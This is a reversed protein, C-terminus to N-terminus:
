GRHKNAPQPEAPDNDPQDDPNDDPNVPTPKPTEPQEEPKIAPQQEPNTEPNQGGDQADDVLTPDVAPLPQDGGGQSVQQEETAAPKSVAAITLMHYKAVLKTGAPSQLAQFLEQHPIVKRDTQVATADDQYYHALRSDMAVMIFYDVDALVPAASLLKAFREAPKVELYQPDTAPVPFRLHGSNPENVYTGINTLKPQFGPILQGYPNHDKFSTSGTAIADSDVINNKSPYPNPWFGALNAGSVPVGVSRLGTLTSDHTTFLVSQDNQEKAYALSNVVVAVLNAQTQHVLAEQYARYTDLTLQPYKLDNALINFFTDTPLPLNGRTKAVGQLGAKEINALDRFTGTVTVDVNRTPNTPNPWFTLKDNSPLKEHGQNPSAPNVNLPYNYQTYTVLYETTDVQAMPVYAQAQCHKQSALYTVEQATPLTLNFQSFSFGAPVKEKVLCQQYANEDFQLQVAGSGNASASGNAAHAALDSEAGSAVDGSQLTSSEGQQAASDSQQGLAQQGSQTPDQQDPQAPATQEPTSGNDQPAVVPADGDTSQVPAQEDQPANGNQQQAQHAAQQNLERLSMLATKAFIPMQRPSDAQVTVHHQGQQRAAVYDGYNVSQSGELAQATPRLIPKALAQAKKEELEAVLKQTAADHNVQRGRGKSSADTATAQSASADAKSAAVKSTSDQTVGSASAQNAAKDAENTQGNNQATDQSKEQDKSNDQAQESGSDTAPSNDAQEPQQSKGQEKTQDTDAKTPQEPKSAEQKAADSDAQPAQPQKSDQSSAEQSTTEKDPEAFLVNGTVKNSTTTGQEPADKSSASGADNTTDTASGSNQNSSESAPAQSAQASSSNQEGQYQALADGLSDRLRFQHQKVAENLPLWMRAPVNFEAYSDFYSTVLYNYYNNTIVFTATKNASADATAKVLQELKIDPSTAGRFSFKFQVRLAQTVQSSQNSTENPNAIAYNPYSGLLFVGNSVLLGLAFYSLKTKPKYM